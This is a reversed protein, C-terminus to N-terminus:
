LLIESRITVESLAPTMVYLSEILQSGDEYVQIEQIYTDTTSYLRFGDVRAQALISGDKGWRALIYRPEAADISIRMRNLGSTTVGLDEWSLRSDSDIVIGTSLRAYDWERTKGVWCAPSGNFVAEVVKVEMTNSMLPVGDYVGSVVFVGGSAFTHAVPVDAQTVYSTVGGIMIASTGGTAGSPCATLLLADGKRVAM